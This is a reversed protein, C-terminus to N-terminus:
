ASPPVPLRAPESSPPHDPPSPVNDPSGPRSPDFLSPGGASPSPTASPPRHRSPSRRRARAPPESLSTGVLERKRSELIADITRAVGDMLSTYFVGPELGPGSPDFMSDRFHVALSEWPTGHQLAMSIALAMSAYLGGLTSGEKAINVFVEGPEASTKDVFGVVVFFEFGGVANKRTISTREPPMHIRTM